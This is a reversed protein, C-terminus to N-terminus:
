VLQACLTLPYRPSKLAKCSIATTCHHRSFCCCWCLWFVSLQVGHRLDTPSPYDPTSSEQNPVQDTPGLDSNSCNPSSVKVLLVQVDSASDKKSDESCSSQPFLHWWRQQSVSLNQMSAQTLTQSDQLLQAQAAPYTPAAASVAEAYIRGRRQAKCPPQSCWSGGRKAPQLEAWGLLGQLCCSYYPIV